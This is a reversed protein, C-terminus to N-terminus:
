SRPAKREAVVGELAQLRGCLMAAEERAQAADQRAHAAEKHEADREGQVKTYREVQRATEQATRRRQEQHVDQEAEAKAKTTVLEAQLADREARAAEQAARLEGRERHAHDLETRLEVARAEATASREQSTALQARLRDSEARANAREALAATLQHKVEELEAALQDALEAAEQQQAELKVRMEDLAAREAALRENAIGLAVSWVEAGLEQLRDAVAQPAPDHLPAAVRAARQARWQGMAESITTFSGGGVARRVAALTPKQGAAELEDAVAHIQELSVPM